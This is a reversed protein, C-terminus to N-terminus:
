IKDLSERSTTSCFMCLCACLAFVDAGKKWWHAIVFFCLLAILILGVPKPTITLTWSLHSESLRPINFLQMPKDNIYSCHKKKKFCNVHPVLLFPSRKKGPPCLSFLFVFSPFLSLAFSYVSPLLADKWATNHCLHPPSLLFTLRGTHQFFLVWCQCASLQHCLRRQSFGPPSPYFILRSVDERRSGGGCVLALAPSCIVPIAAHGSSM